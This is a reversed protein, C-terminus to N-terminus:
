VDHADDGGRDGVRGGAPLDHEDGGGVGVRAVAVAAADVAAGVAALREPVEAARRAVQREARGGEQDLVGAVGVLEVRGERAEADEAAAAAALGAPLGPLGDVVVQGAEGPEGVRQADLQRDVVVGGRVGVGDVGRDDGVRRRGQGGGGGLPRLRN